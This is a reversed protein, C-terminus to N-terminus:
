HLRFRKRVPFKQYDRGSKAIVVGIVSKAKERFLIEAASSLTAGSTIVDDFLLVSKGAVTAIANKSETFRGQMNKKRAEGSLKKQITGGPKRHIAHCFVLGLRDATAKALLAMHDYGDAQIAKASRPAYAVVWSAPTSYIVPRIADVLEDALFCIVDRRHSHKLSFIIRNEPLETKGPSYHYLKVLRHIRGKELATSPCLCRCRVQFCRSCQRSKADEYVTRCSACFVSENKALLSGCGVCKPPFILDLIPTLLSRLHLAPM